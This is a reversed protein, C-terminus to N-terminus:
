RMFPHSIAITALKRRAAIFARRAFYLSLIVCWVFMGFHMADWTRLPYSSLIRWELKPDRFLMVDGAVGFFGFVLAALIFLVGALVPHQQDLSQLSRRRDISLGILFWFAAIGLIRDGDFSLFGNVAYPIPLPILGGLWFGPGNILSNVVRAPVEWGTGMRWLMPQQKKAVVMLLASLLSMLVPLLVRWRKRPTQRSAAETSAIQKVDNPTPLM